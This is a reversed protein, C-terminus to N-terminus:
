YDTIAGYKSDLYDLIEESEKMIHGEDDIIPVFGGMDKVVQPKNERDINIVEYEVELEDLKERVKACFPCNPLQYLKIM